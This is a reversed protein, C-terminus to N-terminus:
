CIAMGAGFASILVPRIFDSDSNACLLSFLWRSRWGNASPDSVLTDLDGDGPCERCIDVGKRDAGNGEADLNPCVNPPM